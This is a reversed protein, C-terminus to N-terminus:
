NLLKLVFTCLKLICVQVFCTFQKWLNEYEKLANNVGLIDHKKLITRDFPDGEEKQSNFYNELSTVLHNENLASFGTCWGELIVIELRPPTRVIPNRPDGKPLRDGDGDFLSKDFLPLEVEAGSKDENIRHLSHLLECGFKIDHTGPQGRGAWLINFPNQEALTLLGNHDLYLDDISLVALSFNHPSSSLENELIKTLHTKGSGQPGQIGVFLPPATAPSSLYRNRHKELSNIIHTIAVSSSDFM